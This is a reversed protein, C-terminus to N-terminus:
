DILSAEDAQAGATTVALAAGALLAMKTMKMRPRGLRKSNSSGGMGQLRHQFTSGSVILFAGTTTM